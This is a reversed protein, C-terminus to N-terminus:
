RRKLKTFEIKEINGDKNMVYDWMYAGEEKVMHANVVQQPSASKGNMGIRVGKQELTELEAFLTVYRESEVSTNKRRMM